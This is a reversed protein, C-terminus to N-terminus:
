SVRRKDSPPEHPKAEGLQQDIAQWAQSSRRLVPGICLSIGLAVLFWAALGILVWWWLDM